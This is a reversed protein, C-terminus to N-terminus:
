RTWIARAAISLGRRVAEDAEILRVTVSLTDFASRYLGQLRGSAVLMVAIGPAREALGAALEVGILTGSITERAAAPTGGFLLQRSRVQFLLNAACAPAEYAAKVASRFAAGDEAEDAGAVAHSLITDRSIASFLEGTMFTAFRAVTGGTMTVWKSHTGPM